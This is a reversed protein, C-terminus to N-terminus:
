CSFTNQRSAFSGHCCLRRPADARGTAREVRKDGSFLRYGVSRSIAVRPDARTRRHARYSTLLKPGRLRISTSIATRASFRLQRNSTKSGLAPRFCAVSQPLFLRDFKRPFEALIDRAEALPALGRETASLELCLGAKFTSPRRGGSTAAAGNRWRARTNSAKSM